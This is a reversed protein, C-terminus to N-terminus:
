AKDKTQDVFSWMLQQSINQISYAELEACPKSGLLLADRATQWVHVAEHVLIGAIAVPDKGEWDRLCVVCIVDGNPNDFTHATAQAGDSVWKPRNDAPANLEDMSKAFAAESLCLALYPGVILHRNLWDTM